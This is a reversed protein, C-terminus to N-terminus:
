KPKFARKKLEQLYEQRQDWPGEGRLYYLRRWNGADWELWEGDKESNNVSGHSYVMKGAATLNGSANEDLWYGVPRDSDFHGSVISQLKGDSTYWKFFPGHLEVRADRAESDRECRLTWVNSMYSVGARAVSNDPCTISKAHRGQASTGCWVQFSDDTVGMGGFIMEGKPCSVLSYDQKYKKCGLTNKLHEPCQITRSLDRKQLPPVLEEATGPHAVSLRLGAVLIIFCAKKALSHNEM